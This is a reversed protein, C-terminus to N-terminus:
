PTLKLGQFHRDALFRLRRHLRFSVHRIGHAEVEAQPCSLPDQEQEMFPHGPGRSIKIGSGELKGPLFDDM